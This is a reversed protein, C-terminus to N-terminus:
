DSPGELSSIKREEESYQTSLNYINQLIDSDQISIHFLPKFLINCQPDSVSKCNHLLIQKPLTYVGANRRSRASRHQKQRGRYGDSPIGKTKRRDETKDGQSQATKGESGPINDQVEDVDTNNRDDKLQFNGSTRVSDNSHQKETTFLTGEYNLESGAQQEVLDTTLNVAVDCHITSLM